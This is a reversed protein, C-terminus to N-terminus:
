KKTIDNVVKQITDLPDTGMPDVEYVKLKLKRAILLAGKHEHQLSIFACELSWKDALRLISDAVGATPSKGECEVSIQRLGYDHCFYGLFPHSVLLGKKRYPELQCSIKTDVRKIEEIYASLRQEYLLSDEPFMESLTASIRGAQDILRRPSMWFHLDQDARDSSSVDFHCADPPHSGDQCPLYDIKENLQLTCPSKKLQKLSDLVRKEYFAGIGIWCDCQEVRQMKQPTIENSHPDFGPDLAAQVEVSDGALSQVVSIYPPISVLVLPRKGKKKKFTAQSFGVLAVLFLSMLSVLILFKRM